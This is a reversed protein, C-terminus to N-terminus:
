FGFSSGDLTFSKASKLDAVAKAVVQKASMGNLAGSGSGGGGGCGAVAVGVAAAVATLALAAPRMRVFSHYGESAM